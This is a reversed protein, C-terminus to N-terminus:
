ILALGCGVCCIILFLLLLDETSLQILVALELGDIHRELTVYLLVERGMLVVRAVSAGLGGGELRGDVFHGDEPALQRLPLADRVCVRSALDEVAQAIVVDLDARALADLDAVVCLLICRWLLLRAELRLRRKLLFDDGM